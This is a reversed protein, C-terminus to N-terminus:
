LRLPSPKFKSPRVDRIDIVDKSRDRAIDRIVKGFTLQNHCNAPVTDLEGNLRESKM